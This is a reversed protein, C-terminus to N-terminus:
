DMKRSLSVFIVKSDGKNRFARAIEKATSGTTYVDDIILIDGSPAEDVFFAGKLNNEREERSLHVQKKTNKVKKISNFVPKKTIRSIENAILKTQNFGRQFLERRTMPVYSICEFEISHKTLFEMLINSFDHKMAKLMNFKLEKVAREMVGEFRAVAYFYFRSNHDILPYELFNIKGLCEDCIYKQETHKGCNCCYSPFFLEQLFDRVPFFTSSFKLIEKQM